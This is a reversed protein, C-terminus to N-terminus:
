CDQNFFKNILISTSCIDEVHRGSLVSPKVIINHANKTAACCSIQKKLLDILMEPRYNYDGYFVIMDLDFLNIVNVLAAGFYKAVYEVVELGLPDGEYASDVVENYSEFGFKEKVASPLVYKELCGKSGCTCDLGNLDVSIHGLEGSYGGFGRYISGDTFISSGIGDKVIIFMASKSSEFGGFVKETNGLLVANNDLYIPLNFRERVLATVPVNHFMEFDPPNLIEGTKYNLPGPSSIGIGIIKERDIKSSEILDDISKFIYDTVQSVESFASLPSETKCILENKLNTVSVIIQKRHLYIGVAFRNNENIDLFIAKRGKGTRDIDTGVEKVQNEKILDNIIITVASKSMKVRHSLDIRSVPGKRIENLLLVRNDCKLTSINSARLVACRRENGVM